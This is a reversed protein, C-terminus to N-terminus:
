GRVHESEGEGYEAGQEAPESAGWQFFFSLIIIIM